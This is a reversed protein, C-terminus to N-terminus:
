DGVLPSRQMFTLSTLERNINDRAICEHEIDFGPIDFFIRKRKLLSQLFDIRAAIYQRPSICEAYELQINEAYQDYIYDPTAFILYDLNLFLKIEKSKLENQEYSENSAIIANYIFTKNVDYANLEKIALDASRKECNISNPEWIADHYMIALIMEDAWSYYSNDILLKYNTLMSILHTTNHYYRGRSSYRRFCDNIQKSYKAMFGKPFIM